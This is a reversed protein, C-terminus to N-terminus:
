FRQNTEKRKRVMDTNTLQPQYPPPPTCNVAMIRSPLIAGPTPADDHIRPQLLHLADRLRRISSGHPKIATFNLSTCRLVTSYPVALGTPTPKKDSIPRQVDRRPVRQKSKAWVLCADGGCQLVIHLLEPKFYSRHENSPNSYGAWM